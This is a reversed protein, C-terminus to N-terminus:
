DAGVPRHSKNRLEHEKGRPQDQEQAVLRRKQEDSLDIAAQRCDIETESEKPRFPTGRLSAVCREIM